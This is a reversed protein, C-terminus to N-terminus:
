LLGELNIDQSQIGRSVLLAKLNKQFLPHGCIRFKDISKIDFLKSSFEAIFQIGTGIYPEWTFNSNSLMCEDLEDGFFMNKASIDCCIYHIKKRFSPPFSRIAALFIAAGVGYAIWLQNEDLKWFSTGFPALIRVPAPLLIADLRNTDRGRAKIFLEIHPDSPKSVITFPHWMYSFDHYSFKLYIFHGPDFQFHLSAAKQSSHPKLQLLFLKPSIETIRRILYKKGWFSFGPLIVALLLAFIGLSVVLAFIIWESYTSPEFLLFTHILATILCVFAFLHIFRWRRYPIQVRYFAFTMVLVIGVFTIWGSLLAVDRWDFLLEFNYRFSWVIQALHFFMFTVSLLAIFHHWHLQRKLGNFIRNLLPLRISLYFSAVLLILALWGSLPSMKM